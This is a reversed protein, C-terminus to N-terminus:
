HLRRSGSIRCLTTAAGAPRGSVDLNWWRAPATLTKCRHHDNVNATTIVL